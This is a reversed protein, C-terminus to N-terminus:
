CMQSGLKQPVSWFAATTPVNAAKMEEMSLLSDSRSDIKYIAGKYAFMGPAIPDEYYKKACHRCELFTFGYIDKGIVANKDGCRPCHAAIDKGAVLLEQNIKALPHQEWNDAVQVCIMEDHALYPNGDSKPPEVEDIRSGWGAPAAPAGAPLDFEHGQDRFRQYTQPGKWQALDDYLQDIKKQDFRKTDRKSVGTFREWGGDFLRYNSGIGLWQDYTVWTPDKEFSQVIPCRRVMRLLGPQNLQIGTDKRPPKVSVPVATLCPQVVEAFRFPM